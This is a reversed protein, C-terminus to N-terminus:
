SGAGCLGLGESAQPYELATCQAMLSCYAAYLAEVAAGRAAAGGGECWWSLAHYWQQKSAPDEAPLAISPLSTRQFM